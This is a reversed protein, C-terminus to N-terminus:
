LLTRFTLQLSLNRRAIARRSIMRQFLAWSPGRMDADYLSNWTSVEARFASAIKQTLDM